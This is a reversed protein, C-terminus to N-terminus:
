RKLAETLREKSDPPLPTNRHPCDSAKARGVRSMVLWGCAERYCHPCIPKRPDHFLDRSKAWTNIEDALAEIEMPYLGFTNGSHQALEIELILDDRQTIKVPM